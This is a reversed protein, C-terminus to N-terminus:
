LEKGDRAVVIDGKFYPRAADIWMQDSLMPDDAPV